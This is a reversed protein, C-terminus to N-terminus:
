YDDTNKYEESKVDNKFAEVMLGDGIEDLSDICSGSKGAVGQFALHATFTALVGRFLDDNKTTHSWGSYLWYREYDYEKLVRKIMPVNKRATDDLVPLWVAADESCYLDMLRAVERIQEDLKGEDTENRTDVFTPRACSLYAYTDETPCSSPSLISTCGAALLALCILIRMKM